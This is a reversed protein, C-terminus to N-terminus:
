KNTRKNFKIIGLNLSVLSSNDDDTDFQVIKNERKDVKNVVFNVLDGVNRIGRREQSANDPVEDSEKGTTVDASAMMVENAPQVDNAPVKMATQGEQQKNVPHIIEEAPQMAALENKSEKQNLRPAIVLPTSTSVRIVEARNVPETGDTIQEESSEAPVEKMDATLGSAQLRIKESGPTFIWIALTLLVVAAASMWYIITGGRKPKPELDEAINNWLGASPLIEADGFRDKFLQDFEKDQM